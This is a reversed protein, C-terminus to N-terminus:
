SDRPSPSTYLLCSHGSGCKRVRVHAVHVGSNAPMPPGFLATCDSSASFVTDGESLRASNQDRLTRSFTLAGGSAPAGHAAAAARTPGQITISNGDGSHVCPHVTPPLDSRALVPAESGVAVYMKREEMDVIVRVPTGRAWSKSYSNCKTGMRGRQSGKDLDVGYFFSSDGVTNRKDVADTAVGTRGSSGKAVWEIRGSSTAPGLAIDYESNTKRTFLFSGDRQQAISCNSHYTTWPVSM